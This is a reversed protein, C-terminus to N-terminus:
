TRGRHAPGQASGVASLVAAPYKRLVSYVQGDWDVQIFGFTPGGLIVPRQAWSIPVESVSHGVLVSDSDVLGICMALLKCLFHLQHHLQSSFSSVLLLFFSNQFHSM